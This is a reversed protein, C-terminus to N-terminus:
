QAHRNQVYWTGSSKKLEFIISAVVPSQRKHSITYTVSETCTCKATDGSISPQACSYHAQINNTSKFVGTMADKQAKAMGPWVKQLEGIDGSQYADKYRQEITERVAKLDPNEVPAPTAPTPASAAIVTVQVTRTDSGGPGKATLTYTTTKGPKVEHSGSPGVAGIGEISVDTANNTAWTLKTSHGPEVSDAGSEFLAISPASPRAAVAVTVSSQVPQGDGKATLTYTTSNAPTIQQSGSVSVSGIGHDITVERANLTQWRLETSQGAQLSGAGATFSVVSAPPKALEKLEARVPVTDGPNANVTSSWSEYGGLSVEVRHKGPKLQLSYIGDSPVNIGGKGDILVKAGARTSIMLYPDRAPQAPGSAKNLAFQATATGSKGVAVSQEAPDYGSKEARLKYNGPVLSLTISKGATVGKLVGDVLLDVNDVNTQVQVSGLVPRLATLTIAVTQPAKGVSVQKQVPDYGDLAAKVSHDGPKLNIACPAKCSSGDVSVEAGAPATEFSVSVQGAPRLFLFLVLALIIVAAVGAIVFVKPSRPAPAAPAVAIHEDLVPPPAVNVAMAVRAAPVEPLKAPPAAFAEFGPGPAAGTTQGGSSFLRTASMSEDQAPPPPALIPAEEWAPQPPAASPQRHAAQQQEFQAKAQEMVGRIASSEGYPKPQSNLLNIAESPKGEALLARAQAAVLEIGRRRADLASSAEAMLQQIGEDRLQAPLSELTAIAGDLDARDIQTRANRRGDEIKRREKGSIKAAAEPVAQDSTSPAREASRELEKRHARVQELLTSVSQDGLGSELAKALLTEAAGADGENMLRQANKLTEAIQKRRAADAAAARAATLLEGIEATHGFDTRARELISIAAAHDERQSASMAAAISATLGASRRQQELKLRLEPIRSQLRPDRFQTSATEILTLAATIRGEAVLKEASALQQAVWHNQQQSKIRELLDLMSRNASDYRLAEEAKGQAQVFQERTLLEEAERKLVEFREARLQEERGAAILNKLPMIETAQPCLAEAERLMRAASEFRASSVEGRVSKLLEEFRQRQEIERVLTTNLVRAQTDNPDLALADDVVRRAMDFEGARQAAEALHVLKLVQDKRAKRQLINERLGVLDFNTQDIKLAQDVLTLADEWNSKNLAEEARSRLVQVQDVRQQQHMLQQVQYLMQKATSNQTDVKLVRSLLERARGLDSDMTARAEEVYESVMQAKLLGEVHELDFAFEDATAYRADRDKALARRIIEDLEPPYHNQIYTSLPPPNESLIKVILAATDRGEFPLHFTLLQYFLVAASWVDTRGDVDYGNLQEPSMYSMSGVIQGTHTLNADGMRAIGFDVLKCDGDPMVMVNGPKVDRHVIRRQHAYNLAHLIKVIIQLKEVISLERRSAIVKDLSEGDLYEMVLFPNGDQDGLDYVVVINPHQLVGVSQAERYFRRMAEENKSFGSTMLKIAVSRGIRPDVGKYVIGMGGEGIVGVVDYSGIRTIDNAPM